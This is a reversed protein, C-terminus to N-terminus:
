QPPSRGLVLNGHPFPHRNRICAVMLDSRVKEASFSKRIRKVRSPIKHAVELLASIIESAHISVEWEGWADYEDVTAFFCWRMSCTTDDSYEINSYSTPGDVRSKTSYVIM